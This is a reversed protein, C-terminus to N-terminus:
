RKDNNKQKYITTETLVLDVPIDMPDIPWVANMQVDYSLGISYIGNFVSLFRDFCGGGYGIRYGDSSFAIGPVICVSNRPPDLFTCSEPLPELIGFRAPRLDELSRLRSWCLENGPQMLPVLVMRQEDLLLRIFSLTDVENDKSSVYCLIAPAQQVAPIQLLVKTIAASRRQAEDPPLARRLALM